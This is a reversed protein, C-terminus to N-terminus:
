NVKDFLYLVHHSCGTFDPNAKLIIPVISDFKKLKDRDLKALVPRFRRSLFKELGIKKVSQYDPFKKSLIRAANNFGCIFKPEKPTVALPHIM